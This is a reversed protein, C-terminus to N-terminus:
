ERKIISRYLIVYFVFYLLILFGVFEYVGLMTYLVIFGFDTSGFIRDFYFFGVLGNKQIFDLFIRLFLSFSVALSAIKIITQVPNFFALLAFSIVPIFEIIIWYHFDRQHAVGDYFFVEGHSFWFYAGSVIFLFFFFRRM